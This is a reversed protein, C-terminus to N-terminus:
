MVGSELPIPNVSVLKGLCGLVGIHFDSEWKVGQVREEELECELAQVREEELEWEFAKPVRPHPHTDPVISDFYLPAKTYEHSAVFCHRTNLTLLNKLGDLIIPLANVSLICSPIELHKLLPFSTCIIEAIGDNITGFLRLTHIHIHIWKEYREAYQVIYLLNSACTLSELKDFYSWTYNNDFTLLELERLNPALKAFMETDLPPPSLDRLKNKNNVLLRDKGVVLRSYHTTPGLCLVLKMSLLFGQLLRKMINALIDHDMDEWRRRKSPDKDYDVRIIDKWVFEDRYRKWERESREHKERNKRKKEKRIEVMEKWKNEERIEAAKRKKEERIEATRRKKEERIEAAKRKKEERLEAAKSKKEERLEAAKRQIEAMKKKEEEQIEVMKYLFFIFNFVIHIHIDIFIQFSIAFGDFGACVMRKLFVSVHDSVFSVVKILVRLHGSQRQPVIWRKGGGIQLLPHNSSLKIGAESLSSIGESGQRRGDVTIIDKWVFADRLRREKEDWIMMERERRKMKKEEGTEFKVGQVSEEEVKWELSKVRPCRSCERGGGEVGISESGTCFVDAYPLELERLFPALREYIDYFPLHPMLIGRKHNLGVKGLLMKSYHTTPRFRLVLMLSLRFGRLLYESDLESNSPRLDFVHNGYPFYVDLLAAFWSKCISVYYYNTYIGEEEVQLLQKMINILIDHDMDEWRRRKSPDKDDDVRIINKWVFEDRRHKEKRERRKRNNREKKKRILCLM